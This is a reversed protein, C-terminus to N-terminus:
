GTSCADRRPSRRARRPSGSSVWWPRPRSGLYGVDALSPYPADLGLVNEYGTWVAQGAAWSWCGAALAAWGQRQRGTTRRAARLCGAGGGAAFALQCLNGTLQRAGDQLLVSLGVAGALVALVALGVVPVGFGRHDARPVSLM